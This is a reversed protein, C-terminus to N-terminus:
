AGNKLSTFPSFSTMKNYKGVSMIFNTVGICPLSINLKRGKEKKERKEEEKRKVKEYKEGV